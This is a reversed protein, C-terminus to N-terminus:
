FVWEDINIILKKNLINLLIRSSFNSQQYQITESGVRLTTSSGKKFSYKIWEKIFYKIDKKKDKVGFNANIKENIKQIYHRVFHREKISLGWYKSDNHINKIVDM